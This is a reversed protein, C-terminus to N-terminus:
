AARASLGEIVEAVADLRPYHLMHGADELERYTSGPIDAHLRRSQDAGILKDPGGHAIAVPVGIEGYRSQYGAVAPLILGSDAGEARMQSPRLALAKNAEVFLCMPNM